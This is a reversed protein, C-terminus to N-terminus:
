GHVSCNYSCLLLPILEYQQMDLVSKSRGYSYLSSLHVRNLIASVWYRADIFSITWKFFFNVIQFNLNAGMM